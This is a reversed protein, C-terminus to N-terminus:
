GQKLDYAKIKNYITTRDVGLLRAARSVNWGTEELARAIHAKEVESLPLIPPGGNSGVRSEHNEVPIPLHKPLV